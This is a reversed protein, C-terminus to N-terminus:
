MSPKGDGSNYHCCGVNACQTSDYGHGECAAEGNLGGSDGGESEDPDYTEANAPLQVSTTLSADLVGGFPSDMCDSSGQHFRLPYFRVVDGEYLTHSGTFTVQEVTNDTM